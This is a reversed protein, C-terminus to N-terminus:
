WPENSYTISNITRNCSWLLARYKVECLAYNVDTLSEFSGREAVLGRDRSGVKTYCHLRRRSWRGRQSRRTRCRQGGGTPATTSNCRRGRRGRRGLFLSIV